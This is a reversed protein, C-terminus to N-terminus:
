AARCHGTWPDRRRARGDERAEAPSAHNEPVGAGGRAGVRGGARARVAAGRGRRGLAGRDRARRHANGDQRAAHHEVRRLRELADPNKVFIGARAARMLAVSLALPISLGLACPCAVVLLAVVRELAVAPGQHWWAAGTVAALVLLVQVFRRALRDTTQLLAPKRSLAEQVLGLLAGIRTKEGAADVRVVLRAGLNTAGASVADGEHASVPAAEGTLVANDISSRGSLIVGDVPVIEGSRIEVRDGPALVALPFRSSRPTRATGTSGGRLSWSRRGACATRASSRRASRAESSSGRVWCRRSSCPSRTSGCRGPRRSGREVRERRVDRGARDCDAPRHPRRAGEPGGAGDSLVPARLVRAGSRRGRPVALPLVARLEGGDRLLRRRLAGRPPVHPEDRVRGGCRAPGPQRPGRGPARGAARSAGHIHPTYGLRDLARGIASLRTHAPRWSVEAVGTGINLRVEDVGRLVAPLKEVLWVCAACHVGELYLRTRRRTARRRPVKPRSANTTSIRLPADPSARRSSRPGAAPRRSPLVSRVGVRPRAHLGPPVRRLLVSARRRRSRAPTPVALGCHACAVTQAPRRSELPRTM